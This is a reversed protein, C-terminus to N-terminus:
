TILGNSSEKVRVARVGAGPAPAPSHLHPQCNVGVAALFFRRSPTHLNNGIIDLSAFYEQVIHTDSVDGNVNCRLDHQATHASFYLALDGIPPRMSVSDRQEAKGRRFNRGQVRV